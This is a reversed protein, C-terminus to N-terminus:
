VAFAVSGAPLVLSALEPRVNETSVPGGSAGVITVPGSPGTLVAVGCNVNAVGSFPACKSHESSSAVKAVQGAVNVVGASGSPSWVSATRTISAALWAPAGVLRPKLTSWVGAACGGSSAPGVPAVLLLEGDNAKLTGAATFM